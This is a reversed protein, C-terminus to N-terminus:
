RATDGSRAPFLYKLVVITMGSVQGLTGGIFTTAVWRDLDIVSLGMLFAFVNVAVIQLSFLLLMAGAYIIRLRRNSRREESLSQTELLSAYTDVQEQTIPTGVSELYQNVVDTHSSTM